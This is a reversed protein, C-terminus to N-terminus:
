KVKVEVKKPPASQLKKLRITLVGNVYEAEVKEQDVSDPLAICRRFAGYRSETQYYDKGKKESSEKKEGALVLQNGSISVQLEKPDIGPIEARVTFEDESEAVDVPPVWGRTGSVPWDFAGFPDRTLADFLRDIEARLTALPSIDARVPEKSKNKWPILSM